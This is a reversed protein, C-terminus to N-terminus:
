LEEEENEFRANKVYEETEAALEEPTLGFARAITSQDRNGSVRKRPKDTPDEGGSQLREGVPVQEALEEVFKKTDDINEAALKRIINEVVAQGNRLKGSNRAYEVLEDAKRKREEAALTEREETIKRLQATANDAREKDAAAQSQLKVITKVVDTDSADAALSLIERLEGMNSNRKEPSGAPRRQEMQALAEARIRDISTGEVAPVNVASVEVGNANEAIAEIVTGDKLVDGRFHSRECFGWWNMKTGCASCTSDGVISFGVSFRDITGDLVSEVADRKVVKITMAVSKEGNEDVLKSGTIIGKRSSVSHQDHDVIFPRGKFSSAFKRLGKDRIRIFNANPTDRQVFTVAEIELTVDEGARLKRLMDKRDDDALSGFESRLVVTSECLDGRM